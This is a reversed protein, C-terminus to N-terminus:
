RLLSITTVATKTEGSISYKIVIVYVGDSVEKGEDNKGDWGSNSVTAIKKGWRNYIEMEANSNALGEVKYVDNRGDNNPTFVNPLNFDVECAVVYVNISQSDPCIESINYTINYPGGVGISSPSFIGDSSIESGSWIGGDFLGSFLISEESLCIITDITTIEASAVTIGMSDMGNCSGFFNYFVQFSGVGAVSPDFVGSNVDVIGTGSWIGGAPIGELDIIGEGLCQNSDITTIDVGLGAGLVSLIISDETACNGSTSYKIFHNGAGAATPLFWGGSPNIIGAGSWIGGPPTAKLTDADTETNCYPGAATIEIKGSSDITVITSDRFPPYPCGPHTVEAIYKTDVTPGVKRTKDTESPENVWIFPQNTTVWINTSDGLCLDDGGAELDSSVDLVNIPEVSIDDIYMNWVETDEPTKGDVHSSTMSSRPGMLGVFIYEYSDDAVFTEEIKIWEVPNADILSDSMVYQNLVSNWNFASSFSWASPDFLQDKTNSFFVGWQNLGPLKFTSTNMLWYSVKYEQGVVLPCLLKAGVWERSDQGSSKGVYLHVVANGTHPTGSFNNLGSFSTFLNNCYDPSGVWNGSSNEINFWDPLFNGVNNGNSLDPVIGNWDEFSPDPVINQALVVSPFILLLAFVGLVKKIRVISMNIM